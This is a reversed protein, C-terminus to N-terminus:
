SSKGNLQADRKWHNSVLSSVYAKLKESNALKARNGETDRLAIEGARFSKILAEIVSKRTEDTAVDKIFTIGPQFVIGQTKLVSLTTNYVADRQSLM